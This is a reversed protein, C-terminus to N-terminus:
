GVVGACVDTTPGNSLGGGRGTLRLTGSWGASTARAEWTALSVTEVSGLEPHRLNTEWGLDLHRLGVKWLGPRLKRRPALHWGCSVRLEAVHAVRDIRVLTGLAVADRLTPVDRPIPGPAPRVLTSALIAAVVLSAPV